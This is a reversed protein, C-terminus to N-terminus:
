RISVNVVTSNNIIANASTNQLITIIGAANQFANGSVTPSGIVTCDCTNGFMLASEDIAAGGRLEAMKQESVAVTGFLPDAVGAGGAQASAAILCLVATATVGISHKM